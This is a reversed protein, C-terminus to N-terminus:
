QVDAHASAIARFQDTLFSTRPDRGPQDKLDADDHTQDCVEGRVIVADHLGRKVHRVANHNGDDKGRKKDFLSAPFDEEGPILLQTQHNGADSHGSPHDRLSCPDAEHSELHDHRDGVEGRNFAYPLPLGTPRGFGDFRPADISDGRKDSHDDVDGTAVIVYGHEIRQAREDEAHGDHHKQPPPFPLALRVVGQDSSDMPILETGLFPAADPLGRLSEDFPPDRSVLRSALMKPDIWNVTPSSHPEEGACENPSGNM